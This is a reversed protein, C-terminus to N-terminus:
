CHYFTTVDSGHPTADSVHSQLTKDTISVVRAFLCNNRYLSAIKFGGDPSYQQGKRRNSFPLKPECLCITCSGCRECWLKAVRGNKPIINLLTKKQFPAM